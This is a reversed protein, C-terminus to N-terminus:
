NVDIHMSNERPHCKAHEAKLDIPCLRTYIQTSTIRKHGLQEQVHRLGAKHKLMLTACSTRFSQVTVNKKVGARYAYEKVIRQPVDHDIRNGRYSLFLAQTDHGNQLKPRGQELYLKVYRLSIDGIAIVRQYNAGGKPVNVRLMGEHFDIDHMNLQCLENNRVGVSFLVELIAKDRLTLPNNLSPEHLVKEMEGEEMYDTPLRREEKIPEIDLTPDKAIFDYRVLFRFFVKVSFLLSAKTSSAVGKGRIGNYTLLYTYFDLMTRKTVQEISSIAKKDLFDFFVKLNKKYKNITNSSKGKVTEYSIFKQFIEKLDEPVWDIYRDPNNLEKAEQRIKKYYARWNIEYTPIKDIVRIQFLYSFFKNIARLREIQSEVVLSSSYGDKFEDWLFDRYNLINAETVMYVNKIGHSRLYRFFGKLHKKVHVVYGYSNWQHQVEIYRGLLDDFTYYRKLKEDKIEPKPLINSDIIIEHGKESVFRFFKKIRNVYVRVTESKFGREKYLGLQFDLILAKTVEHPYYIHKLRLFHVFQRLPNTFSLIYVKSKGGKSLLNSFDLLLSELKKSEM